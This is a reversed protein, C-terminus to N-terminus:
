KRGLFEGSKKQETYFSAGVGLQPVSRREPPMLFKHRYQCIKVWGFSKSEVMAMYNRYKSRTM